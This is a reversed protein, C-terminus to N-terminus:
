KVPAALDQTQIPGTTTAPPGTILWEKLAHKVQYEFEVNMDAMMQKTMDYLTQREDDDQNPRRRSVRAEAYGARAGAANYIELRVSLTGTYAQRSKIISADNIVFVARGSPGLAQIRDQAMNRLAVVPPTPALNSVDDSNGRPGLYRQEIDRSAVNLKLPTLYDYTLPEYTKPASSRGGCAALLLPLAALLTRRM